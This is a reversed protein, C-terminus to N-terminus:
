QHLRRRWKGERFASLLNKARGPELELLSSGQGFFDNLGSIKSIEARTLQAFGMSWRSFSRKEIPEEILKIASAHRPDKLIADYLTHVRVADGELVQFFAGDVYLLMGTIGAPANHRIAAELINGLDNREMARTAASAYVLCIDHTAPQFTLSASASLTASSPSSSTDSMMENAVQTPAARHRRPLGGCM